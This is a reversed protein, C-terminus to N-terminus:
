FEGSIKVGCLIMSPHSNWFSMWEGEVRRFWVCEEGHPADRWFCYLVPESDLLDPPLKPDFDPEDIVLHREQRHKEGNGEELRNPIGHREILSALSESLYDDPYISVSAEEAVLPASFSLLLIISLIFKM